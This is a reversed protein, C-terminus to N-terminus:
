LGPIADQAAPFRGPGPATRIGRKLRCCPGLRYLRSVQDHLEEDCEECEVVRVGAAVEATTAL